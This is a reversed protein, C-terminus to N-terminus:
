SGATMKVLKLRYKRNSITFEFGQRTLINASEEFVTGNNAPVMDPSTFQCFVNEGTMYVLAMEKGYDDPVSVVSNEALHIIRAGKQYSYAQISSMGSAEDTNKSLLIEDRFLDRYQKGYVSRLYAEFDRLLERPNKCIKKGTETDDAIMQNILHILGDYRAEQFVPKGNRLLKTREVRYRYPYYAPNELYIWDNMEEENLGTVQRMYDTGTIMYLFTMGLGYFDIRIDSPGSDLGTQRPHAYGPTGKGFSGRKRTGTSGSPHAIDFDIYICKRLDPSVIINAPKIDRHLLPDDRYRDYYACMGNLLQHMHRFMTEEPVFAADEVYLEELSEGEAYEEMLCLIPIGSQKKELQRATQLFAAFESDADEEPYLQYFELSEVYVIYPYRMQFRIEREFATQAEKLAQPSCEGVLVFKIFHEKGDKAVIGCRLPFGKNVKICPVQDEETLFRRVQYVEKTKTNEIRM